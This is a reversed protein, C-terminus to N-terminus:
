WSEDEEDWQEAPTDEPGTGITGRTWTIEVEFDALTVYGGVTHLVAAESSRDAGLAIQLRGDTSRTRRVGTGDLRAHHAKQILGILLLLCTYELRQTVESLRVRGLAVLTARAEENIQKDNLAKVALWHKDARHDSVHPARRPQDSTSISRLRIMMPPVPVQHWTRTPAYLQGPDEETFHRAGGLGTASYWLRHSEHDDETQHFRRAMGIVDESWASPARRAIDLRDLVKGIGGVARLLVKRLKDVGSVTETSPEFWERVGSVHRWAVDAWSDRDHGPGAELEGASEGAVDLGQALRDPGIQHLDALARRIDASVDALDDSFESIYVITEVKFVQYEDVNVTVANLMRNVQHVFASANSTLSKFTRHLEEVAHYVATGAIARVKLLSVLTTLLELVRALAVRQLGVQRRLGDEFGALADHASEGEQSLDYVRERQRYADLSTAYSNDEDPLLNGWGALKELRDNLIHRALELPPEASRLATDIQEVRLPLEYSAAADLFVDM